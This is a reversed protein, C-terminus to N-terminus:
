FKFGMEGTRLVGVVVMVVVVVVVVVVVRHHGGVAEVGEALDGVEAEDEDEVEDEPGDGDHLVDPRRLLVQPRVSPPGGRRAPSAAVPGVAAHVGLRWLAAHGNLSKLSRHM